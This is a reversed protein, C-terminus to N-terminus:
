KEFHKFGILEMLSNITTISAFQVAKFKLGFKEDIFAILMMITLSDLKGIDKLNTDESIPDDDIELAEKLENIFEVKKM